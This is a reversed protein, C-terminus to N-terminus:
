DLALLVMRVLRHAAPRWKDPDDVRQKMGEIGDLIADAMSTPSFDRRALDVARAEAEVAIAGAIAGAMRVRWRAIIDGTLKEKQDLIESGHPSRSIEAIHDLMGVDIAKMLREGIPGSSALVREAASVADSLLKDALAAYIAAKNRFERYLGPRSIGAERAIDDMTVRSFGYRMFVSLGAGLIAERRDDQEAM